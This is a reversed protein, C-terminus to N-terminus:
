KVITLILLWVVIFMQILGLAYIKDDHREDVARQRELEKTQLRDIQAKSLKYHAGATM